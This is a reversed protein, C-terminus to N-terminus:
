RSHQTTTHSRSVDLIPAGYIYSMLQRLTLLTGTMCIQMHFYMKKDRSRYKILNVRSLKVLLQCINHFKNCIGHCYIKTKAVYPLLRTFTQPPLSLIVVLNLTKSNRNATSNRFMHLM